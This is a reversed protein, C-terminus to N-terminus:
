FFDYFPCNIGFDDLIEFILERTINGFFLGVIEGGLGYGHPADGFM